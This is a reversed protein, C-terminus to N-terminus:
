LKFCSLRIALAVIESDAEFDCNIHPIDMDNLIAFIIGSGFMPMCEASKMPQGYSHIRQSMRSMITEMKRQEYAGDFVFIPTVNCRTLL